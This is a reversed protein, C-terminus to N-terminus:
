AEGRRVSFNLMVVERGTEDTVQLYANTGTGSRDALLQAFTNCAMENAENDDALETGEEDPQDSGNFFYRPMLDPIGEDWFPENSVKRLSVRKLRAQAM